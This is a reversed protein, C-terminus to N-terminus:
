PLYSLGIRMKSTMYWRLATRIFTAKSVKVYSQSLDESLAEVHAALKADCLFNLQVIENDATTSETGIAPAPDFEVGGHRAWPREVCFDILMVQVLKELTLGRTAAEQRLTQRGAARIRCPMMKFQGGAWVQRKTKDGFLPKRGRKKPETM